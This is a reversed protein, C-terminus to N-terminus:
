VTSARQRPEFVVAEREQDLEDQKERWLKGKQSVKVLTRFFTGEHYKRREIESLETKMANAKRKLMAAFLSRARDEDEIDDVVYEVEWQDGRKLIPPTDIVVGNIRNRLTITFGYLERKKGDLMRDSEGFRAEMEKLSEQELPTGFGSALTFPRVETPEVQDALSKLADVESEELLGNQVSQSLLQSSKELQDGVVAQLRKIEKHTAGTDAMLSDLNNIDKYLQFGMKALKMVSARREAKGNKAGPGQLKQFDQYYNIASKQLEIVESTWMDELREPDTIKKRFIEEKQRKAAAEQAMEKDTTPEVFVYTFPM